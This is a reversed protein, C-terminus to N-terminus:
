ESYIRLAVDFSGCSYVTTERHIHLKLSLERVVNEGDVNGCEHRDTDGPHGEPQVM